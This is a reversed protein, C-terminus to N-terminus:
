LTLCRATRCVLVIEPKPLKVKQKTQVVISCFNHDPNHCDDECCLQFTYLGPTEYLSTCLGAEKLFSTTLSETQCLCDSVVFAFVIHIGALM